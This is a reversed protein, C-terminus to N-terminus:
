TNHEIRFYARGDTEDWREFFGEWQIEARKGEPMFDVGPMDGCDISIENGIIRAQKYYHLRGDAYVGGDCEQYEEVKLESNIREFTEQVIWDWTDDKALFGRVNWATNAIARETSTSESFYKNWWETFSIM